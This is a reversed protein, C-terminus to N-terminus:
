FLYRINEEAGNSHLHLLATAEQLYFFLQLINVHRAEFPAPVIGVEFRCVNQVNGMMGTFNVIRRKPSQLRETM